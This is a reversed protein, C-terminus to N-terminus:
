PVEHTEETPRLSIKIERTREKGLFDVVKEKVLIYDKGIKAIYGGNSGIRTGRSVFYGKGSPDEILAWRKSGKSVIGTLKLEKLSWKELPSRPRVSTKLPKKEKFFPEFPSPFGQLRTHYTESALIKEWKELEKDEFIIKKKVVPKKPSIQPEKKKCGSLLFCVILVIFIWIKM